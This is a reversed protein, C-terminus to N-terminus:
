YDNQTQNKAEWRMEDDKFEQWRFLEEKLSEYDLHPLTSTQYTTEGDSVSYLSGIVPHFLDLVTVDHMQFLIQNRYSM